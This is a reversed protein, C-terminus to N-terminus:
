PSPAVGGGTREAVAEALRRRVMTGQKLLADLEGRAPAAVTPDDLGALNLRAVLAAAELAAGALAGAAGLDGLTAPRADDVIGVAQELARLSARAIALPVETAGTL